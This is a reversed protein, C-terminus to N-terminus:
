EAAEEYLGVYGEEKLLDIYEQELPSPDSPEGIVYHSLAEAYEERTCFDEGKYLEPSIANRVWKGPKRTEEIAMPGVETNDATLPVVETNLKEAVEFVMPSLDKLGYKQKPKNRVRVRKCYIVSENNKNTRMRFTYGDAATFARRLAKIFARAKSHALTVVKFESGLNKSSYSRLKAKWPPTKEKPKSEEVKFEAGFNKPIYDMKTTM